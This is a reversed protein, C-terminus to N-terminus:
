EAPAQGSQRGGPATSNTKEKTRAITRGTFRGDFRATKFSHCSHSLPQHNTPDWLRPDAPGTVPEIHDVHGTVGHCGVAHMRLHHAGDVLTRRVECGAPLRGAAVPLGCCLPHERRFQESYVQWRWDYGREAASGRRRDYLRRVNGATAAHPRHVPPRTPM